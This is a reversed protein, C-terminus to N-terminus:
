AAIPDRAHRGERLWLRAPEDLVRAEAADFLALEERTFVSRWRGNVGKHFFRDAGGEFAIDMAPILDEGDRKMAEFGADAVLAPWSRAAIPIGLFDAVRRMEGELDAKLDAYHVLLINPLHRFEWFSRIHTFHSWMPYGDHEWPFSGRTLWDRLFVHIDDPCRPLPEGRFGEGGNVMEYAFDNYAGWHNWISMAVDRADRGICLYKTNRDYPLATLPLHSKFFRRHSQWEAHQAMEEIPDQFRVDVWPSLAWLSDPLRGPGFLLLSVIRQMWTTGTKLSTSIVIDDPRPLIADWRRSDLHHNRYEHTRQPLNMTEFTAATV